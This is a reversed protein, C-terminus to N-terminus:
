RRCGLRVIRPAEHAMDRRALARMEEPCHALWLGYGICDESEVRLVEVLEKARVPCAKERLGDGPLCRYGGHRVLELFDVCGSGGAKRGHGSAWLPLLM